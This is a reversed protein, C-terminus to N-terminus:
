HDPDIGKQIWELAQGEWDDVSSADIFRVLEHMGAEKAMRTAQIKTIPNTIVIAQRGLGRQTLDILKEFLVERADKPFAKAGRLDVFAAFEDKRGNAVPDVDRTWGEMEDKQLFGEFVVHMGYPTEEIQYM